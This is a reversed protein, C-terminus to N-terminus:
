LPQFLNLLSLTSTYEEHLFRIMREKLIFTAKDFQLDTFPIHEKKIIRSNDNLCIAEATSDANRKIIWYQFSEHKLEAQCSAIIDLLWYCSFQNAFARVSRTYRIGFPLNYYHHLSKASYNKSRSPKIAYPAADNANFLTPFSM